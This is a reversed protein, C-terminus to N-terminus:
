LNKSLPWFTAMTRPGNLLGNEYGLQQLCLQQQQVHTGGVVGGPFVLEAPPWLWKWGEGRSRHRDSSTCSDSPSKEKPWRISMTKKQDTSVQILLSGSFPLKLTELRRRSLPYHQSFLCFILLLVKDDIMWRYMHKCSYEVVHWDKIISNNNM